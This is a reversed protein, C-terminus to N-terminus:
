GGQRVMAKNTRIKYGNRVGVVAVYFVRGMIAGAPIMCKGGIIPAAHEKEKTDFFQAAKKCRDWEKDFTFEAELYGMTGSVLGSTDCGPDIAIKQGTVKFSLTRM